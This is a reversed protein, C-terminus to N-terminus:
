SEDTTGRVERGFEGLLDFEAELDGLVLLAYYRFYTQVPVQVFAVVLLFALLAPVGVVALLVLVLPELGGVAFFVLGVPVGVVFLFTVAVVGVVFAVVIGVALGLVWRVVLYLGVQALNGRLTPWFARWGAVVGVDRAIMAPVVFDITLQLVVGAVLALVLFVPIAVVLSLLAPGGGALLAPGVFAGLVGLSILGVVVYFGFLRLGEGLRDRFYRRVHVERAVLADVFAFQMVASVVAFALGLLFAVIAVAVVLALLQDDPVTTPLDAGVDPGVDPGGGADFTGTPPGTVGLFFVIVALRLWTAFEFPFLFRRTATLADDVADIAHWPM